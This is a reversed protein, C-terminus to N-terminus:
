AEDSVKGPNFRANKKKVTDIKLFFLNCYSKALILVAM